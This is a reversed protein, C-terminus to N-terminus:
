RAPAPTDSFDDFLGFAPLEPRPLNFSSIKLNPMASLEFDFSPASLELEAILRNVGSGGTLNAIPPPTVTAAVSIVVPGGSPFVKAAFATGALLSSVLVGLSLM